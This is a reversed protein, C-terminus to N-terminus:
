PMLIMYITGRPVLDPERSTTKTSSSSLCGILMYEQKVYSLPPLHEFNDVDVENEVADHMDDDAVEDGEESEAGKDEM